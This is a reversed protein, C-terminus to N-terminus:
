SVPIEGYKGLSAAEPTLYPMVPLSPNYNNTQGHSLLSCLMLLLCCVGRHISTTKM